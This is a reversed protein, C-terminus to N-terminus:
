GLENLQMKQERLEIALENEDKHNKLDIIKVNNM